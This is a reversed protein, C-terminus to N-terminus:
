EISISITYKYNKLAKCANLFSTFLPFEAVRKYFFFPPTQTLSFFVPTSVLCMQFFCGQYILKIYLSTSTSECLLAM